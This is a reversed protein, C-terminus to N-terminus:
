APTGLLSDPWPESAYTHGVWSTEVRLDAITDGVVKLDTLHWEEPNFNPINDM